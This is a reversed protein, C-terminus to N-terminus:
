SRLFSVMAWNLLRVPRAHAETGHNALALIAITLPEMHHRHTRWLFQTLAVGPDSCTVVIAGSGGRFISASAVSENVFFPRARYSRCALPQDKSQLAPKAITSPTSDLSVVIIFLHAPHSSGATLRSVLPMPCDQTPNMITDLCRDSASM